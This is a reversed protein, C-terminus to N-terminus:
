SVRLARHPHSHATHACARAHQSFPNQDKSFANEKSRQPVSRPSLSTHQFEPPSSAHALSHPTPLAGHTPEHTRPSMRSPACSIRAHSPSPPKPATSTHPYMAVFIQQSEARSRCVNLLGEVFTKRPSPLGQSYQLIRHGVAFTAFLTLRMPRTSRPTIMVAIIVAPRSQGLLSPSNLYSPAGLYLLHICFSPFPSTQTFLTNSEWSFKSSVLRTWPTSRTM